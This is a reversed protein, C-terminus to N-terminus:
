RDRGLRRRDVPDHKGLEGQLARQYDINRTFQDTTIGQKDLLKYSDGGGSPLGKASSTSARRTCTRSRARPDHRRRRRAQVQRGALRAAPHGRRRGAGTLGTYLPAYDPTAAWKMFVMGGLVVAVVGLITM